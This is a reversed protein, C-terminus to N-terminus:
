GTRTRCSTPTLLHAIAGAIAAVSAPNGLAARAQLRDRGELWGVPNKNMM